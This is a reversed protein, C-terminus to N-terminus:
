RWRRGLRYLKLFLRRTPFSLTWLRSYVRYIWATTYMTHGNRTFATMVGLIQSVAITEHVFDNDGCVTCTDGHLALLRHLVLQGNSRRYLVVDRKRYTGAPEIFVTDRHNQLLPVMSDGHVTAAYFGNEALLIEPNSM